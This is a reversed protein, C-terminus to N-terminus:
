RPVAITIATAAISSTGTAAIDHARQVAREVQPRALSAASKRCAGYEPSDLGVSQECVWSVSFGVRRNLEREGKGTALNLDVYRVQNTSMGTPASSLAPNAAGSSALFPTTAALMIAAGISLKKKNRM